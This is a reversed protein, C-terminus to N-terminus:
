PNLFPSNIWRTRRHLLGLVLVPQRPGLASPRHLFPAPFARRRARLDRATVPQNYHSATMTPIPGLREERQSFIKSDTREEIAIRLFEAPQLGISDGTQAPNCGCPPGPHERPEPLPGIHKDGGGHRNLPPGACILAELLLAQKRLPPPNSM